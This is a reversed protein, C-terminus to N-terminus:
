ISYILTMLLSNASISNSLVFPKYLTYFTTKILKLIFISFLFLSLM